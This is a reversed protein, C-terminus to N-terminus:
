NAILVRTSGVSLTVPPFGGINTYQLVWALTQGNTVKRMSHIDFSRRLSSVASSPDVSTTGFFMDHSAWYLWPAGLETQPDPLGAGGTAFLDDGMVIIGLSIVCDDQAAPAVTPTIIYEGLMRIITSKQGFAIGSPAQVGNAVFDVAAGAMFLWMKDMRKGRGRDAM